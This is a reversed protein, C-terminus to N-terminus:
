ERERKKVCERETECKRGSDRVEERQRERVEERVKERECM